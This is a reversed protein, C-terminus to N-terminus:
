FKLAARIGVWKQDGTARLDLVAELMLLSIGVEPVIGMEDEGDGFFYLANAGVFVLGLGLRGGVGAHYITADDRSVGEVEEAPFRSLGAQAHVGALLLSLAAQGRVTFGRDYADAFDGFPHALGVGVSPTIQAEVDTTTLALVALALVLLRPWRPM